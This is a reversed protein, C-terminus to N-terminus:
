SCLQGSNRLTDPYFPSWDEGPASETWAALGRKGIAVEDAGGDEIGEAFLLRRLQDREAPSLRSVQELIADLKTM